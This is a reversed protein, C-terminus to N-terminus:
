LAKPVTCLVKMMHTQLLTGRPVALLRKELGKATQCRMPRCSGETFLLCSCIALNCLVYASRGERHGQETLSRLIGLRAAPSPVGVELERDLRGARRLAPDLADPRNTAALVVVRDADTAAGACLLSTGPGPNCLNLCLYLNLIQNNKLPLTFGIGCSAKDCRVWLPIFRPQRNLTPAFLTYFPPVGGPSNTAALSYVAPRQDAGLFLGHSFM